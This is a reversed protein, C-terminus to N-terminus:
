VLMGTAIAHRTLGATDHINLKDMVNQRHREVTKISISLVDAIQKNARGGAILRLVERERSTLSILRVPSQSPIRAKLCADRWHDSITESFFTNGKHVERIAVVLENPSSHKVLLGKAGAQMMLTLCEEGGYATVALVKTEPVNRVIERTADLGNMVPMAIDMLVVDPLLEKTRRVAERGNEAEGVAEIDETPALLARIGQRIMAHDDAVLIRIKTM